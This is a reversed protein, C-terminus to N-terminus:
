YKKSLLDAIRSNPAREVIVPCRDPYERHIREYSSSSSSTINILREHLSYDIYELSQEDESLRRR